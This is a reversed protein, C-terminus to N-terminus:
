DGYYGRIYAGTLSISDIDNNFKELLMEKTLTKDNKFLRDV